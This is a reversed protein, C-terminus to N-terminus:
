AADFLSKAWQGSKTVGIVLLICGVLALGLIGTSQAMANATGVTRVDTVMPEVVVEMFMTYILICLVIGLGSLATGAFRFLYQKFIRNDELPLFACAIPSVAIWFVLEFMRAYAMVWVFYSAVFIGLAVIAVFIVFALVEYWSIDGAVDALERALYEMSSTGGFANSASRIWIAATGYIGALFSQSVDMAVRTLVLGLLAKLIYEWKLMNMTVTLKIFQILFCIVCVTLAIPRIVNQVATALWLMRISLADGSNFLDMSMVDVAQGIRDDAGFLFYFIIEFVTDRFRTM